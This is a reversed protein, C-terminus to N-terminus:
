KTKQFLPVINIKQNEIKIEMDDKSKSNCTLPVLVIVQNPNKAHLDNIVEKLNTNGFLKYKYKPKKNYILPAMSSSRAPVLAFNPLRGKADRKVFSLDSKPVKAAWVKYEAENDKSSHWPSYQTNQIKEGPKFVKWGGSTPMPFAAPKSAYIIEEVSSNKDLTLIYPVQLGKPHPVMVYVNAPLTFTESSYAGHGNLTVMNVIPDQTKPVSECFAQNYIILLFAILINRM